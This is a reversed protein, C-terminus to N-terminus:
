YARALSGELWNLYAQNTVRNGGPTPFDGSFYWDGKHNPIAKILSSLPQFVIQVKGELGEPTLLESIKRSVEEETFPAYIRKVLNKSEMLDNAKLALIEKGLDRIIYEMGREKLLAIAAEFAIFKGLQSMDIGYCDPYRIQPASSAIIIRKPNLRGLIKLISQKLTTGRVISDDICVLSDLGPRLIGHTVDYVHGVMEDRRSDETIFTRLKVDKLVVKGVRPRMDLITTIEDDRLKGAGEKIREAKHQNLWTETERIMGLFATEATNPIYSFVANDLDYKIAKLIEPVLLGGLKMRENYIEPDNGRSFYIREFSCSKKPLAETFSKIMMRGDSKVVLAKGPDLEKIDSYDVNFVTAIAPRESALVVVEDDSWYYAPRIGNPDRIVFADGNGTLGGMTYGGDWKKAANRLVRVLDLDRSILESITRNDSTAKRHNDYLRQVEEDLYHGIRELVTETDSFFRPHQGLSVLHDFLTDVNTLNFNGAVLLSRTRWNNSRVVPHCYDLSQAGHTGYRLHGLLVEGAFDFNEKLFSTQNYKEPNRLKLDELKDTLESVVNMWPSAGNNRTRKMFPRGEDLNIKICGLGAGDQGRNHQKEMLLFMRNLGWLANGYKAKYHDLPKLLRILGIGCEHKISDSM